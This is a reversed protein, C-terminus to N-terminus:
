PISRSALDRIAELHDKSLSFAFSGLTMKVKKANALKLLQEYPVILELTRKTYPAWKRTVIITQLVDMKGFTVLEGDIKASLVHGEYFKPELAEYLIGISVNKPTTVSQGPYSYFMTFGLWSWNRPHQANDDMIDNPDEVEKVFMLQIAVQTEDKSKDYTTVIKGDYKYNKKPPPQLSDHNQAPSHVAAITVLLLVFFIKSM